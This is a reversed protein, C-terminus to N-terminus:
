GDIITMWKKKDRIEPFWKYMPGNINLDHKKLTYKKPNMLINKKNRSQKGTVKQIANHLYACPENNIKSYNYIRYWFDVDGGGMSDCFNEDYGGLKEFFSKQFAYNTGQLISKSVRNLFSDRIIAGATFSFKELTDNHLDIAGKHFRGDDDSFLIKNNKAIEISKNLYIPKRFKRGKFGWDSPNYIKIIPNELSLIDLTLNDTEDDNFVLVENVNKSDITQLCKLLRDKRKYTFIAITIM